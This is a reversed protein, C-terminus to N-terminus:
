IATLLGEDNWIQLPCIIIEVFLYLMWIEEYLSWPIVLNVIAFFSSNINVQTVLANYTFLIENFKEDDIVCKARGSTVRFKTSFFIKPFPLIWRTKHEKQRNEFSNQKPCINRRQTQVWLKEKRKRKGRCCLCIHFFIKCKIINFLNDKKNNNWLIFLLVSCPFKYTIYRYILFYSSLKYM